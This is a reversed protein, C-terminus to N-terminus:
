PRFLPQGGVITLLIGICVLVVLVVLVVKTIKQFPEPPNVYDILFNLLWFVLGGVILYIIITVAGSISIM